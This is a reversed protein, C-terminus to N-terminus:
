IVVLCKDIRVQELMRLGDEAIQQRQVGEFQFPTFVVGVTLLGRKKAEAAIIPAAGTGTGGGMGACIFVIKADSIKEIVKDLNEEASKKGVLPQARNTLNNAIILEV